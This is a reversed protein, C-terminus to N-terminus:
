KYGHLDHYIFNYYYKNNKINKKENIIKENYRRRETM